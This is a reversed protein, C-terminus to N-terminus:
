TCWCSPTSRAATDLRVPGVGRVAAPAGATGPLLFAVAGTANCLQGPAAALADLLADISIASGLGAGVARLLEPFRARQPYLLRKLRADFRPWVYLLPFLLLAVAYPRVAVLLLAVASLIAVAATYLVAQRVAIRANLLAPRLTVRALALVFLALPWLLFRVDLEVAGFGERAFQLAAFPGMGLAAGALLIRARQAALRDSTRMALWACRAVFFVSSLLLVSAGVTRTYAFRGVYHMQWATLNAIVQLLAAGYILWLIRSSRVLLPQVVPFALGAHFLLYPVVGVAFLFYRANWVHAADIPVFVTLLTGSAFSCSTLLAWSPIEYPRLVFTIAGVALFLLGIFDSAGQTFAFDEWQWPRVPLTLDRVEGRVSRLTLTNTAGLETRVSAGGTTHGRLDALSLEVGNIRLARGGGRLGAESAERTAPSVTLGDMFWGVNPTGLREFKDAVALALGVLSVGVLAAFLAQQGLTGDRIRMGHRAM